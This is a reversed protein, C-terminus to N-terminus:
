PPGSSSLSVSSGTRHGPGPLDEDAVAPDADVVDVQLVAGPV